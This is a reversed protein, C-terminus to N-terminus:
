HEGETVVPTVGTVIDPLAAARAAEESLHLFSEGTETDTVRWLQGVQQVTFRDGM